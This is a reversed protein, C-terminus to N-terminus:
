SFQESCPSLISKYKAVPSHQSLTIDKPILPLPDTSQISSSTPTPVPYDPSVMFKSNNVCGYLKNKVYLRSELIKIDHRSCGSQILIWREKLLLSDRKREQQSLDPKISVPHTLLRRNSLVSMVDAARIFKVLIPRPRTLLTNFKGLRHLDKISDSNISSVLGSMM